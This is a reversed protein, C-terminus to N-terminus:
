YPELKNEVFYLDDKLVIKEENKKVTEKILGNDVIKELNDRFLIVM